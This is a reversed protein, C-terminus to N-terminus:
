QSIEAEVNTGLIMLYDRIAVIIRYQIHADEDSYIPNYDDDENFSFFNPMKTGPQLEQPDIMWHLIWEPRLRDKSLILNPAVIADTLPEGERTAHCLACQYADFM